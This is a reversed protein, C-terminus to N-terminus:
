VFPTLNLVNSSILLNVYDVLIFLERIGFSENYNNEDLNNSLEISMTSASHTFNADISVPLEPHSNGCTQVGEYYYYFTDSVITSDVKLYAHEADWTDIKM